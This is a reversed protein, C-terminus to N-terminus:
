SASDVLKLSVLILLFPAPIQGLIRIKIVLYLILSLQSFDPLLLSKLM